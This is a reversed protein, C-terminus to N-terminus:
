AADDASFLLPQVAGNQYRWADLGRALGRAAVREDDRAVEDKHTRV